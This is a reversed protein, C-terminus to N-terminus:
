RDPFRCHGLPCILPPDRDNTTRYRNANTAIPSAAIAHRAIRHNHREKGSGSTGSCVPMYGQGNREHRVHARPKSLPLSTGTSTGFPKATTTAAEPMMSMLLLNGDFHEDERQDPQSQTHHFPPPHMTSTIVRDASPPCSRVLSDGLIM